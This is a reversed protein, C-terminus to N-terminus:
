YNLYLIMCYIGPIEHFNNMVDSFLLVIHLAVQANQLTDVASFLTKKSCVPSNHHHTYDVHLYFIKLLLSSGNEM